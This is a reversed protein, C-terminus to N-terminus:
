IKRLSSGSLVYIVDKDPKSWSGRPFADELTGYVKGDKIYKLIVEPSGKTGANMSGIYRYGNDNKIYIAYHLDYGNGPPEMNVYSVLYDSKNDNNLDGDIVENLHFEVLHGAGLIEDNGKSAFFYSIKDKEETVEAQHYDPNGIYDKAFVMPIDKTIQIKLQNFENLPKKNRCSLTLFLFAGLAIKAIMVRLYDNIFAYSLNKKLRKGLKMM